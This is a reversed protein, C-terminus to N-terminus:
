AEDGRMATDGEVLDVFESVGDDDGALTELVWRNEDLATRRVGIRYQSAPGHGRGVHRMADWDPETYAFRQSEDDLKLERDPITLGLAQVRPVSWRLFQQRMDENSRGKIKWITLDADREAPTPPGHFCLLRSWWRDLAGQVLQFQEDTGGVLAQMVDRGYLIHFAEEWCIKQLARRYPGYSTNLLAKQAVLSAADSLWAIIGVDAWSDTFYHFFWHFKARGAALDALIHERPRGLDELLCYLLQAHGIEDQVKASTGIKREYTPARAIWDRELLAGMYESNAHMEVFRIVAQRYGEPMWDGPEVVGGGKLFAVFADVDGARESQSQATAQAPPSGSHSCPTAPAVLANHHM